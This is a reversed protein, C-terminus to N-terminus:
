RLKLELRVKGRISQFSVTVPISADEQDILILLFAPTTFRILDVESDKLKKIFELGRKVAMSM